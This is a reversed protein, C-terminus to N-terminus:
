RTGPLMRRLVEDRDVVHHKLAAAAHLGVVAAMAWALLEHAEKLVPKLVPDPGMVVPLPFKGLYVVPYGAALSYLYGAIPVAFIFFYLALHGGHAALKEWPKMHTPLAPPEHFLRWVLRLCALGFVTVGLWKHWNFYKLKTPTIGPMDTMVLALGFAAVIFGAVLWHLWKATATYGRVDNM